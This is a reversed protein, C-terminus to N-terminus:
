LSVDRLVREGAPHACPGSHNLQTLAERSALQSGEVLARLKAWVIQVRGGLGKVFKEPGVAKAYTIFERRRM